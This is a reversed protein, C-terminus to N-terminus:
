AMELVLEEDRHDVRPLHVVANRGGEALADYPRVLLAGVKADVDVEGQHGGKLNSDMSTHQNTHKCPPEAEELYVPLLM